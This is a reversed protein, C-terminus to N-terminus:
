DPYLPERDACPHADPVHGEGEGVQISTGMEELGAYFNELHLPSNPRFDVVVEYDQGEEIEALTNELHMADLPKVEALAVDLPENNIWRVMGELLFFFGKGGSDVVGAEKLVPLLDPTREVSRAAAQVAIELIEVPDDVTEVAKGTAAAVDKIVTLITGEVPRVVGKYATDRASAFAATLNEGTVVSENKM